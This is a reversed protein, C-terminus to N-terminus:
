VDRSCARSGGCFVASTGSWLGREVVRCWPLLELRWRGHAVAAWRGRQVERMGRAEGGSECRGRAGGDCRVEDGADLRRGADERLQGLGDM